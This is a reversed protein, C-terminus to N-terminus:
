LAVSFTSDVSPMEPGCSSVALRTAALDDRAADQKARITATPDPGSSAQGTHGHQVASGPETFPGVNTAM